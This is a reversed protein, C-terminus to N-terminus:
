VGMEVTVFLIDAMKMFYKCFDPLLEMNKKYYFGNCDAMSGTQITKTYFCSKVQPNPRM